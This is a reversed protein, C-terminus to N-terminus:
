KNIGGRLNILKELDEKTDIDFFENESYFSIFSVKDLNNKIVARGGIDGHLSILEEKFDTSFIVPSKNRGNVKPVVIGRNKNFTELLIEITEKRILPQDGAFFIYSDSQVSAKKLAIRIGESQGYNANKNYITTIKYKSAIEKVRTDKYILIIEDFQISQVTNIIWEVLPRGCFDLLLKNRGM